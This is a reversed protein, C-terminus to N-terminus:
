GSVASRAPDPPAGPSTQRRAATLREWPLISLIAICHPLFVIGLGLYTVVHFSLLFLVLGVRMRDTRDTM